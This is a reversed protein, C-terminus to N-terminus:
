KKIIKYTNKSNTETDRVEILYIGANFRSLDIAEKSSTKQKLLTKGGLDMLRIELQHNDPQEAFLYQATPNPYVRVAVDIKYDETSLTELDLSAYYGNGLQAGGSSMLGVVPEGATWSLKYGGGSQTGGAMGIVQKSISQGFVTQGLALLLICITKKM